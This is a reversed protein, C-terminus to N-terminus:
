RRSFQYPKYKIVIYYYISYEWHVFYLRNEIKNWWRIWSKTKDCSLISASKRAKQALLSPRNTCYQSSQWLVQCSIIFQLYHSFLQTFALWLLLIDTKSSIFTNIFNWLLKKTLQTKKMIKFHYILVSEYLLTGALDPYEIYYSNM